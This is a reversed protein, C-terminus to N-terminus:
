KSTTMQYTLRARYNLTPNTLRTHIVYDSIHVEHQFKEIFWHDRERREGNDFFISLITMWLICRMIIVHVQILIIRLYISRPWGPRAFHERRWMLVHPLCCKRITVSTSNFESSTTTMSGVYVSFFNNSWYCSGNLAHVFQYCNSSSTTPATSTVIGVTGCQDNTVLYLGSTPSRTTPRIVSTHTKMIQWTEALLVRYTWGRLHFTSALPLSSATSM